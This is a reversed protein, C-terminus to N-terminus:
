HFAYLNGDDSTVYVAGGPGIAPSSSIPGGTTYKFRLSGDPNVADFSGDEAGFFVTGDGGIAPSSSVNASAFTWAAAGTAGNLAHLGDGHGVYVTGDLAIAPAGNGADSPLGLFTSPLSVTPLTVTWAVAGTAPDLAVVNGLVTYPPGFFNPADEWASYAILNGTTHLDLAVDSLVATLASADTANSAATVGAAPWAAVAKFGSSVPQIAFFQGNNGWYSTGDAALAIGFRESEMTLPLAVGASATATTTSVEFAIASYPDTGGVNPGDDDGELLFGDPSIAPVADFGDTGYTLAFLVAGSSSIRYLNELGTQDSGSAVLLSGDSLLTPTSPHPDGSADSLQVTWLTTGTPSVAYLLGTMNMQYVNGDGDVVPSNIYTSAGSLGSPAGINVKWAVTGALASTDATSRGTDQPDAHWKPWGATALEIGGFSGGTSASGGSSGGGSSGSSGLGGSSGSSSTGSGVGGSSGNGGSTGATGSGTGSSSSATTSGGSGSGASATSGGSSTGHGTSGGSTSSGTAHGTSGGSASGHGTSGAVAGSSGTTSSGASAEGTSGASASSGTTGASGSGNGGVFVCATGECVFGSCCDTSTQCSQNASHCLGGTTGTGGTSGGCAALALVSGVAVFRANM